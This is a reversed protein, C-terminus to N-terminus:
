CCAIAGTVRTRRAPTPKPLPNTSSTEGVWRLHPIFNARKRRAGQKATGRTTQANAGENHAWAAGGGGAGGGGGGTATATTAGTGSGGFYGIVVIVPNTSAAHCRDSSSELLEPM